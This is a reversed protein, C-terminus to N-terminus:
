MVINYANILPLVFFNIWGRQHAILHDSERNMM